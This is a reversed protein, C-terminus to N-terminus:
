GNWQNEGGKKTINYLSAVCAGIFWTGEDVGRYAGWGFMGSHSTSGGETLGSGLILMRSALM